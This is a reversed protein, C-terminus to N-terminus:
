LMVEDSKIKVSYLTEKHYHREEDEAHILNFLIISIKRSYIDLLIYKVFLPERM